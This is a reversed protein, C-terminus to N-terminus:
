CHGGAGAMLGPGGSMATNMCRDQCFAREWATKSLEEAQQDDFWSGSVAGYMDPDTGPSAGVGALRSPGDSHHEICQHPTAASPQQGSEVVVALSGASGGSPRRELVLVILM